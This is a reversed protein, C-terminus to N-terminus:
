SPKVEVVGARVRLPFPELRCPMASLCEGTDADFRFGHWPCTITGAEVDCTARDLPLGVHACANRFARLQGNARLVIIKVGGGEFAVPRDATVDDVRPGPFWGAPGGALQIQVLEAPPEPAPATPPRIIGHMTLLARVGPDDVLEFLLEKGRPDAELRRVITTLGAKHFAEIAARAAHAKERAAEDLSDFAEIVRDVRAALSEVDDDPLPAPSRHADHMM